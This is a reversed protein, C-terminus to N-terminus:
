VRSDDALEEDDEALADSESLNYDDILEGRQTCDRVQSDFMPGFFSPVVRFETLYFFLPRSAQLKELVVPGRFTAEPFHAMGEFVAGRFKAPGGFTAEHFNARKFRCQSFTVKGKFQANRFSTNGLDSGIFTADGEFVANAFKGSRIATRPMRFNRLLAGRLDLDTNPWKLEGGERKSPTRLGDLLRQQVTDRVVTDAEDLASEIRQQPLRLYACLVDVCAQRQDAWDDALQAMANIGALRVAASANGIQEAASVYRARFQNEREIRRRNHETNYALDYVRQADVLRQKDTHDQREKLRLNRLAVFVAGAATPVGIMTVATRAAEFPEVKYTELVWTYVYYAIAAAGVITCVTGVILIWLRTQKPDVRVPIATKDDASTM